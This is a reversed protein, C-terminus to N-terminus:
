CVASEFYAAGDMTPMIGYLTKLVCSSIKGRGYTVSTFLKHFQCRADNASATAVNELTLTIFSKKETGRSVFYALTNTAKPMNKSPKALRHLCPQSTHARLASYAGAM